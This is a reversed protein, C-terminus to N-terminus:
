PLERVRINRWRCRAGRGWRSEGFVPDNDHVELALHGRPGLVSLVADADYHPHRMTNLDVEAVLVDNVWTTIVPKAGVCRIRLHNWDAWHWTQLFDAALGAQTLLSRKEATVPEQSTSPDEEVLRAPRGTEDTEIDLVFPVAHFGGTGNGFFGGISGSKRHDVLVQFGEWTEDRRRLMVGTDAPWDPWMDLVLEFDGFTEDSVLYGGWGPHDPDQRGVIAGDQVDWIAPYERARVNYNDPIWSVTEQPSPGGPWLPGYVRPRPHWGTLTSGDFLDRWTM